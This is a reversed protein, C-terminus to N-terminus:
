AQKELWSLAAAALQEPTNAATDLHIDSGQRYLPRRRELTCTLSERQASGEAPLDPRQVSSLPDKDIRRKITAEDADLWLVFANRRLSHWQAQHEIAGGGTAIVYGTRSCLEALLNAEAKRFYPWGHEHVIEAVSGGLRKSLEIDMDIFFLGLRQALLRGVTSKGTARFGTLLINAVKSNM